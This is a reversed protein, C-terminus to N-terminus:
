RHQKQRKRKSASQRGTGVKEFRKAHRDFRDYVAAIAHIGLRIAQLVPLVNVTGGWNEVLNIAHTYGNETLASFPKTKIRQPTTITELTCKQM